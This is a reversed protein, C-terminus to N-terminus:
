DAFRSSLFSRIGTLGNNIGKLGLALMLCLTLYGLFIVYTLYLSEVNNAASVIMHRTDGHAIYIFMSISGIRSIISKENAIGNKVLGFVTISALAFGTFTFPFLIAFGAGLFFTACAPVLFWLSLSGYISCYTGLAVILLHPIPTAFLYIDFNDIVSQNLAGAIATLTFFAAFSPAPFRRVAFFVLPFLLYIQVALALYWYVSVFGYLAGPRLNNTFTVFKLFELLTKPLEITWGQALRLVLVTALGLVSLKLIKLVSSLLTAYAEKLSSINRQALKAALGYSSLFIFLHVGYHGYFSALAHLADLPDHLLINLVNSFAEQNFFMENEGPAGAINHWFNHFVVGLIALGKLFNTDQRSLRVDVPRTFCALM